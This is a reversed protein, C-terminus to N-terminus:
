QAYVKKLLEELDIKKYLRFKNLPNRYTKLKGEREWNRLTNKTVGLYLSADKIKLYDSIKMTM